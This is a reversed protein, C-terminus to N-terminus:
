QSSREVQAAAIATLQVTEHGNPALKLSFGQKEFPKRFDPDEPAGEPVDEWAFVKYEGPPVDAIKFAGKEDSFGSRDFDIRGSHDAYAIVNVRARVVPQGMENQVSGEVEGVDAGLLVTLPELKSSLDIRQDAMQRDGMRISKLYVGATRNITVDYAVPAADKLSFSGDRNIEASPSGLYQSQLNLRLKGFGSFAGGAIRVSGAVEVGPLFTLTGGDVDANVVEVHQVAYSRKEGGVGRTFVADYSGPPVASFSLGAASAGSFTPFFRGVRSLQAQVHSFTPGDAETLEFRITYTGTAQLRIDFDKLQAGARLEIPTARSEDTAGPYYSPATEPLYTGSNSRRIGAAKLYYTGAELGFLRFDGNDRTQVVAVTQLEKKGASYKSQVADVVEERVPDGNADLIRGAIVGLPTLPIGLDKVERGAEVKVSPGPAGAAGTWRVAFGAREVVIGYEGPEVNDISFRGDGDTEDAYSLGHEVDQARLIVTVKPVPEANLSNIARGSVRTGAPAAAAVQQALFASAILISIM